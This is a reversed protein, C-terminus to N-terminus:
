RAHDHSAAIADAVTFKNEYLARGIIAGCIGIQALSTVDSLAAIGGSAQLQLDPFQEQILRYLSSNPGQLTGDVDIDTCLVHQLGHATFMSLLDFVSRSSHQQWGHSVVCPVGADFKIDVALVIKESGHDNLLEIVLQPQTLALSGIVVRHAGEGLLRSVDDRSRMGGGTQVYLETNELINKIAQTQALKPDRAGDLDVLHLWRAGQQHYSKAVAIPDVDYQSVKSFDGKFLRVCHGNKLDIAPYIEM